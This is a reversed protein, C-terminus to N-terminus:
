AHVLRMLDDRNNLEPNDMVAELLRNMTQGIQPGPKMGMQILDHGNIALDKTSIADSSELAQVLLDRAKQLQKADYENMEGTRKGSADAERLALLDFALKADGDCRKLFKRAGKPTDFYPFMHNRVLFEVKEIRKKPYRLREMFAKVLDGGVEEHDAGLTSGDDLVKKYFHGGGGEPATEDRWFSDPKGSDHFLAALRVDPDNSIQTAKSLVQMTHEWVDLDHHPNMQSFGVTSSLEPALYDLVGTQEAMTMAAVPNPASLLKDMEMQVREGPLHRLQPATESMARLLQPDADFGYRSTAVLGRVIRLPDDHFARENVLALRGSTLDGMGNHPDLFEGSNPNYGMANITFDRRGMDDTPSINPDANVEFDKHGTGTSRETRPLAIEVEDNGKKFRFVGFAAGTFDLRGLPALTAQITESPLGSVMLDIDKPNKGMLADRVAGGVVHVEGGANTLAQIATQAAPSQDIQSNLTAGASMSDMTDSIRTPTWGAHRYYEEGEPPIGLDRLTWGSPKDSLICAGEPAFVIKGDPKRVRYWWGGDWWEVQIVEGEGQGGRFVVHELEEFKPVSTPEDDSEEFEDNATRYYEEGSEPIGFDKLKWASPSDMDPGQYLGNISRRELDDEPYHARDYAGQEDYTQVDYWWQKLAPNWFASIINGAHGYAKETVADGVEFKPIGQPEKDDEPIEGFLRDFVRDKAEDVSPDQEWEFDDDDLGFPAAVVWKGLTQNIDELVDQPPFEVPLGPYVGHLANEFAPLISKDQSDEFFDSFIEAYEPQGAEDNIIYGFIGRGERYFKLEQGSLQGIISPHTEGWLLKGDPLFVFAEGLSTSRKWSSTNPWNYNIQYTDSGPSIPTKTTLDQMQQATWSEHLKLRDPPIPAQHIFSNPETTGAIGGNDPTLNHEMGSLDVRYIDTGVTNPDPGGYDPHVHTSHMYAGWDRATQLNDAVFVGNPQVSPNYSWNRKANWHLGEQQIKARESMPAAHYYYSGSPEPQPEQRKFPNWGVKATVPEDGAGEQHVWEPLLGAKQDAYITNAQDATQNQEGYPGYNVWSNQGRTEATMAPRALDSYMASHSRWANEEGDARFGVGEKAHGFVDHVARFLDNHTVPQGNWKEGSDQLLPHDSPNEDMGYGASTPYVFMHKNQHLDLVAERPSNPYPDYDQPYFEFKYGNKVLHDYQAKTENIMAQYSAQVAPDQPNHQMKDYEQAIRAARAPDVKAYTSPPNYPLGASQMYTSALDQLGKHSGFQLKGAGPVRVAGPLGRLDNGRNSNLISQLDETNGSAAYANWGEQVDPFLARIKDLLEPPYDGVGMQDSYPELVYQPVEDDSQNYITGWAVRNMEDRDMGSARLYNVLEAHTDTTWLFKGDLYAFSASGRPEVVPRRTSVM